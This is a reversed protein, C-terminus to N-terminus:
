RHGARVVHLVHGRRQKAVGSLTRLLRGNVAAARGSLVASVPGVYRLAHGLRAGTNDLHCRTRWRGVDIAIARLPEDILIRELVPVIAAAAAETCARFEADVTERVLVAFAAQMGFAAAVGHAEALADDAVCVAAQEAVQIALKAREVLRLADGSVRQDAKLLGAVQGRFSATVESTLPRVREVVFEDVVVALQRAIYDALCPDAEDGLPSFAVSSGARPM